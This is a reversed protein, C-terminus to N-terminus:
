PTTELWVPTVPVAPDINGAAKDQPIHQRNRALVGHAPIEDALAGARLDAILQDFHAASVRFRHRYNVQVTPAETCAAMCEVAELTFLGDATTGGPKIGLVHEAHEVLEDVHHGKPGTSPNVRPDRCTGHSGSPCVLGARPAM